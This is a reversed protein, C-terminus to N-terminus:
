LLADPRLSRVSGSFVSLSLVATAFAAWPWYERGRAFLFLIALIALGLIASEIRTLTTRAGLLLGAALLVYAVAPAYRWGFGRGIFVVVALALLAPPPVPAAPHALADAVHAPWKSSRGP